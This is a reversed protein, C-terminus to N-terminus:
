SIMDKHQLFSRRSLADTGQFVFYLLHGTVHFPFGLLTIPWSQHQKKDLDHYARTHKAHLKSPVMQWFQVKELMDQQIKELEATVATVVESQEM